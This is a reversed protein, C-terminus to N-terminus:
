NKTLYNQIIVRRNNRKIFNLHVIKELFFNFEYSFPIEEIVYKIELMETIYASINHVISDKKAEDIQFLCDKEIITQKIKNYLLKNM